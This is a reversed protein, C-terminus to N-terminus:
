WMCKSYSIKAVRYPRTKQVVTYLTNPM